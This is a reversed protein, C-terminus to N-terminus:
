RSSRRNIELAQMSPGGLALSRAHPLSTSQRATIFAVPTTAGVEAATTSPLALAAAVAAVLAAVVLTLHAIM